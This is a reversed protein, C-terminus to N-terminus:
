INTCPVHFRLLRGMFIVGIIRAPESSKAADAKAWFVVPPLVVLGFAVVVGPAALPVEVVEPEPIVVAGTPPPLVGLATAPGLLEVPLM